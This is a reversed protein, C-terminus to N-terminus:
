YIGAARNAKLTEFFDGRPLGVNVTTNTNNTTAFVRGGNISIDINIDNKVDALPKKGAMESNKQQLQARRALEADILKVQYSNPGGGMVMQRSRLDILDKNSRWSAQSTALQEGTKISAYGLVGTLAAPLGGVTAGFAGGSNLFAQYGAYGGLGAVGATVPNEIAWNGLKLTNEAVNSSGTSKMAKSKEIEIRKAKAWTTENVKSFDESIIDTNAAGLADDRIKKYDEWDKMLGAMFNSSEYDQIGMAKLAAASGGKTKAKLTEFFSDIDKGVKFKGTKFDIFDSVNIGVKKFEKRYSVLHSFFGKMDTAAEGPEGRNRRAIQLMAAIQAVGKEGTIGYQSASALVEPFYRSMDKLEFRGSKGAKHMINFARDLKEPKIKMKQYLDVATNGIDGVNSFSATAARNISKLGDLVNKPDIGAAVMNKFTELQDEPLQLTTSSLAIIEQRINDMEKATLEGTLRMETLTREFNIVDAVAQRLLSGGGLLVAIKTLSSTVGSMKHGLSTWSAVMKNTAQSTANSLQSLTSKVNEAGKIGLQIFLNMNNM